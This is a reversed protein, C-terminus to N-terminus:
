QNKTNLIEVTKELAILRETLEDRTLTSGSTDITVDSEGSDKSAYYTGNTIDNVLVEGTGKLTITGGTPKEGKFSLEEGTSTQGGYNTFDFVYNKGEEMEELHSAYYVNASEILGYISNEFAKKKVNNIVKGIMPVTIIAVISLIIVVALLEILTFGKKKM